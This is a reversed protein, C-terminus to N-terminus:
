RETQTSTEPPFPTLLSKEEGIGHRIMVRNLEKSVLRSQVVIMFQNSHWM